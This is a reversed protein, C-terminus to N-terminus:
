MKCGVNATAAWTTLSNLKTTTTRPRKTHRAAIPNVAEPMRRRNLYAVKGEDTRFAINEM